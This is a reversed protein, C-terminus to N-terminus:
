EFVTAIEVFGYQKCSCTLHSFCRIYSLLRSITHLWNWHDLIIVCVCVCVGSKHSFYNLLTKATYQELSNLILFKQFIYVIAMRFCPICLMAYNQRMAPGLYIYGTSRFRCFPACMANRIIIALHLLVIVDKCHVSEIRERKWQPLHFTNPINTQKFYMYIRQSTILINNHQHTIPISKSRSVSPCILVLLGFFGACFGFFVLRSWM